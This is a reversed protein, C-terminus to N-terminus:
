HSFPASKRYGSRSRFPPIGAIKHVEGPFNAMFLERPGFDKRFAWFGSPIELSYASGGGSPLGTPYEPLHDLAM